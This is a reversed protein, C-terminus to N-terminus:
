NKEAASCQAIHRKLRKPGGFQKKCFPCYYQVVATELKIANPIDLVPDVHLMYTRAFYCHKESTSKDDGIDIEIIVGASDIKFIKGTVSLARALAHIFLDVTENVYNKEPDNLFEDFEKLIDISSESFKSYVDVRRTMELKLMEKLDPITTVHGFSELTVKYAQFICLGDRAVPVITKKYRGVYTDLLSFQAEHDLTISLYISYFFTARRM